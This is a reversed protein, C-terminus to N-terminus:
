TPNENEDPTEAADTVLNHHGLHKQKAELHHRTHETPPIVVPLLDTVKYGNEIFVHMKHPNNTALGIECTIPIGFFRLIAVAGAYTRVDIVGGPALISAAEVTNLRLEDQLRLTALKFPLGMGRGDQRPINIVLGEGIDAIKQMTRYLQERCDCTLDHFMQGTECGSDIRLVLQEERHFVPMLDADLDAKVLVSYKEWQDDIHFDYQWFLGYPTQLKGVGRRETAYWRVTGNEAINFRRMFPLMGKKAINLVTQVEAISVGNRLAIERIDIQPIDM